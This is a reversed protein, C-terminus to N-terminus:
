GFPGAGVDPIEWLSYLMPKRAALTEVDVWVVGDRTSMVAYRDFWIGLAIGTIPEEPEEMAIVDGARAFPLTTRMAGLQELVPVAGGYQRVVAIAQRENRHFPVDPAIDRGFCIALATRVLTACDSRGWIYPMGRVNEAWTILRSRWDPVRITSM